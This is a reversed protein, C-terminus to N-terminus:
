SEQTFQPSKTEPDKVRKNSNLAKQQQQQNYTNRMSTTLEAKGKKKKSCLSYWKSLFNVLHSYIIVKISKERTNLKLTIYNISSNCNDYCNVISLEM